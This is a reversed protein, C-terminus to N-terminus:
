YYSDQLNCIRENTSYLINISTELDCGDNLHELEQSFVKTYFELYDKDIKPTYNLNEKVKLLYSYLDEDGKVKSELENVFKRLVKGYSMGWGRSM